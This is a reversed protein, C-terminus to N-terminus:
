STASTKFLWYAPVHWRAFLYLSITLKCPASAYQTAVHVDQKRNTDTLTWDLTLLKENVKISVDQVLNTSMRNRKAACM